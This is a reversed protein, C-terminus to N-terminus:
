QQSNPVGSEQARRSRAVAVPSPCAPVSRSHDSMGCSRAELPPTPLWDSCRPLRLHPASAPHRPPPPRPPPASKPSTDPAQRTRDLRTTRDSSMGACIMFLLLAMAAFFIQFSGRAKLAQWDALAWGSKLMHYICHIYTHIYTHMSDNPCTNTWGGGAERWWMCLVCRSHQVYPRM